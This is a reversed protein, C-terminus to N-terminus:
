SSYLVSDFLSIVGSLVIVILALTIFLIFPNPLKNGIREFANLFRNFRSENTRNNKSSM